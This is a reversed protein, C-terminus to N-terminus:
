NQELTTATPTAKYRRWRCWTVFTQRPQCGTRDGNVINWRRGYWRPQFNGNARAFHVCGLHLAPHGAGMDPPQHWRRRPEHHEEAFLWSPCCSNSVNFGALMAQDSPFKLSTSRWCQQVSAAIEFHALLPALAQRDDRQHNSIQEM